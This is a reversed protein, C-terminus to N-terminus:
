AESVMAKNTQLFHGFDYRVTCDENLLETKERILFQTKVDGPRKKKM